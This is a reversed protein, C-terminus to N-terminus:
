QARRMGVGVTCVHQALNARREHRETSRDTPIHAQAFVLGALARQHPYPGLQGLQGRNINLDPFHELVARPQHLSRDAVLWAPYPYGWSPAGASESWSRSATPWPGA